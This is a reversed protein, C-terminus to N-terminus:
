KVFRIEDIRLHFEIGSNILKATILDVRPQTDPIVCHDIVWKYDHSNNRLIGCYPHMKALRSRYIYPDSSHQDVLYLQPKKKDVKQPLVAGSLYFSAATSFLYRVNLFGVTKSKEPVRFGLVQLYKYMRNLNFTRRAPDIKAILIFTVEVKKMM